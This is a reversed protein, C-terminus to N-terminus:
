LEAFAARASARFYDRVEQENHLVVSNGSDIEAFAETIAAQVAEQYDPNAHEIQNLVESIFLHSALQARQLAAQQKTLKATMTVAAGLATRASARFTRPQELLGYALTTLRQQEAESLSEWQTAKTKLSDFMTASFDLLTSAPLTPAPLELIAVSM